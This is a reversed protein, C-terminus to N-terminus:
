KNSSDSQLKSSHINAKGVALNANGLPYQQSFAKSPSRSGPKNTPAEYAEPFDVM